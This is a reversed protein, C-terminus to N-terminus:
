RRDFHEQQSGNGREKWPVEVLIRTGKKPSSQIKMEGKLLNVREKMSWLGMRKESLATVPRGNVDFGKGDDEIQLIMKPFSAELVITVRSAKAHKGINRLAEQAVRFLNIAIDADLELENIRASHFNVRLGTKASFDKCYRSLTRVLGMQDLGRPRLGHSLDRVATISAHIM